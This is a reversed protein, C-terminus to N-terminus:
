TFGSILRYGSLDWGHTHTHMRTLLTTHQMSLVFVSVYGSERRYFYDPPTLGRGLADIDNLQNVPPPPKQFNHGTPIAFLRALGFDTIVLKGHRDVLINGPHLDAHVIGQQVCM